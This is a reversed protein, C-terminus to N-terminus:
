KYGDKQNNGNQYLQNINLISNNRFKGITTIISDYIFLRFLRKNM